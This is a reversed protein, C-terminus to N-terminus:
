ESAKPLFNIEHYAVGYTNEIKKIQLVNPFSKAQEWGRLMDESVGIKQAAEAQTMNANVRAAKLTIAM